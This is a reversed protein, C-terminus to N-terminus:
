RWSRRPTRAITKGHRILPIARLTGGAGAIIIVCQAFESFIKFRELNPRPCRAETSTLRQWGACCFIPQTLAL